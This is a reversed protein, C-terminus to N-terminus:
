RHVHVPPKLDDEDVDVAEGDEGGHRDEEGNINGDGDKDGSARRIREGAMSEIVEERARGFMFPSTARSMLISRRCWSSLPIFMPSGERVYRDLIRMTAAQVAHYMCCSKTM